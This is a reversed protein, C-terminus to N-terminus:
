NRERSLKAVIFHITFLDSIDDGSANETVGAPDLLGSRLLFPVLGVALFIM